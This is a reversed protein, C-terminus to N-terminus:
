TARPVKGTAIQVVLTDSSHPALGRVLCVPPSSSPSPHLAPSSVTPVSASFARQRRFRCPACSSSPSFSPGWPRCLIEQYHISYCIKSSMTTPVCPGTPLHLPSQISHCRSNPTIAVEDRVCNLTNFASNLEDCYGVHVSQTTIGLPRHKM